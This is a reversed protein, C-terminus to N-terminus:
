FSTVRDIELSVLSLDGWVLDSTDVPYLKFLSSDPSLVTTIENLAAPPIIKIMRPM